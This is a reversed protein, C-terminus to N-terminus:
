SYIQEYTLDITRSKTYIRVQLIKIDGYEGSYANVFKTGKEGVVEIVFGASKGVFVFTQYNRGEAFAYGEETM